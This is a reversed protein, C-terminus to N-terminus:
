TRERFVASSPSHEDAHKIQLKSPSRRRRRAGWGALGLGVLTLSAPEPVVSAAPAFAAVTAQTPSEGGTSVVLDGRTFNTANTRIAVVFSKEGPNIIGGDSAFHFDIQAGSSSRNVSDPANTGNDPDDDSYYFVDTVWGTFSTMLLDQVSGTSSQSAAVQYLFDLTGGAQEKV